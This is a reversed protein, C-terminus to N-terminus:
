ILQNFRNLDENMNGDNRIANVVAEAWEYNEEIEPIDLQVGYEAEYWEILETLTWYAEPPTDGGWSHLMTSIAKLFLDKRNM